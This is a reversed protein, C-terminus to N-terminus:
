SPLHTADRQEPERGKASAEHTDKILDRLYDRNAFQFSIDSRRDVLPDVVKNIPNVFDLLNACEEGLRM